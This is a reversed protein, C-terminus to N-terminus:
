GSSLPLLRRLQVLLGRREGGRQRRLGRHPADGPRGPPRRPGVGRGPGRPASARRRLGGHARGGAGRGGDVRLRAGGRGPHHRLPQRVPERRGRPRRHAGLDVLTASRGLEEGPTTGPVVAAPRTGDFMPLVRQPATASQAPERPLGAVYAGYIVGAAGVTNGDVAFGPLGVALDPVGDGDVDGGGGLGRGGQANARGAALVVMQPSAPCGAGGWGFIVRVTGENTLNPDEFPAGTAVEDCGDGDLDGVATVTLGLQDNATRGDLQFDPACAVQIRGQADRARGRILVIGGANARGSPDLELNGVILDGRGDGNADFGGDINRLGAGVQPGFYMFIPTQSPAGSTAGSFVLVAGVDNRTGTCSADPVYGTGFTAPQDEFRSVVAFDPTGDGDFDGAPAVGMGFRDFSSQRSAETIALAPETAFGSATGPYLYAAGTLRGTGDVGLEPAGM